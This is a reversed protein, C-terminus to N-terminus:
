QFSILSKMKFGSELDLNFGIAQMCVIWGGHRGDRTGRQGPM